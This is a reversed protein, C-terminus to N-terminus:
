MMGKKKGKGMPAKKGMPKSAPKAMTGSMKVNGKYPAAQKGFPSPKAKQPMSSDMSSVTSKKKSQMGM